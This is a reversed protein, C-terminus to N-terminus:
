DWRTANEDNLRGPPDLIVCFLLGAPDRMIWWENVEQVKTAGLGELRAVEADLDDTHIDLHVKSSGEGLRQVLVGLGDKTLRLGHYEPYEEIHRFKKGLADQWFALAQDHDAPAFDIVVKDLRSYHPM